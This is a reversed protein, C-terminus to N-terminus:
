RALYSGGTADAIEKMFGKWRSSTNQAGVEIAHIRALRFRDLQRIGALIAARTRRKGETPAGDTLVVITDADPDSLAIEISDYLNTRGDPALKEMYRLASAKAAANAAFLAPKYPKPETSFPILNVRSDPGLRAFVAELSRQLEERKTTQVGFRIPEDMSHSYDLVFCVHESELPLDLLHGSTGHADRAGRQPRKSPPEFIAGQEGYWAKWRDAEAGFDIGTLAFLADGIELRVRMRQEMGIARVLPWAAARASAVDTGFAGLARAAAVRLSWSEAELAAALAEARDPRPRKALAEAAAIRPEPAHDGLVVAAAQGAADEGLLVDLAEIASARVLADKAALLESLKPAAGREGMQALSLAAVRVVDAQRDGLADKLAAAAHSGAVALAHAAVVRVEPPAKAALGVRALAAIEEPAGRPEDLVGAARERVSRDEDSAALLLAEVVGAGREGSLQSVAKLRLEPQKEKYFKHFVELPSPEAAPLPAAAPAFSLVVALVASAVRRQM